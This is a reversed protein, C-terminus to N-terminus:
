VEMGDPHEMAFRALEESEYRHTETWSKGTRIEEEKELRKFWLFVKTYVAAVKYSYEHEVQIVYVYHNYSAIKVIRRRGTEKFRRM